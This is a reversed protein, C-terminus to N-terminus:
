ELRGVSLVDVKGLEAARQDLNCSLFSVHAACGVRFPAVAGPWVATEEVERAVPFRGHVGSFDQSEGSPHITGCTDAPCRVVRTGVCGACRSRISRISMWRCTVRGGRDGGAWLRGLDSDGVADSM